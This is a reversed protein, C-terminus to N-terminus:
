ELENLFFFLMLSQCRKGLENRYVKKDNEEVVGGKNSNQRFLFSDISADALFKFEIDSSVRGLSERCM